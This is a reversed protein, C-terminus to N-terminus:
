QEDGEKNELIRLAKEYRKLRSEDEKSPFPIRSLDMNDKIDLIKIKTALDNNKIRAIFNMYTEGDRRTLCDVAFALHQPYELTILDDVTIDTDEVIDHLIAVIREDDTNCKTALRLPHMIYPNGGKDVQGDHGEAALIIAGTLGNM